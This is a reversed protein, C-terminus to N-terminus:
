QVSSIWEGVKESVKKSSINDLHNGDTYSLVENLSTLDLYGDATEVAKRIRLNFDPMLEQEIQMILPHIPIRVLYVKGYKKLHVITKLLYEYRLNSFSNTPLMNARYHVEKQKVRSAIAASDGLDLSVELRGDPDLCVSNDKVLFPKAYKGFSNNNFLYYFNPNMAVEPTNALCLNKERFNNADEPNKRDASISWPDITVIFLGNKTTPDVKKVTSNYYVPGFPSHVVTFAYNYLHHGTKEKIISPILGQAARSTGLILGKQKPSTFKLYHPDACGDIRSAIFAFSALVVLIFILTQFLFRKM